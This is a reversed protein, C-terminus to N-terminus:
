SRCCGASRTGSRGTGRTRHRTTWRCAPSSGRGRRASATRAPRTCGPWTRRRVRLGGGTDARGPPIMSIVLAEPSVALVEPVPVAGAEALWRLGNAEAAFAAAFEASPVASAPSRPLGPVAATRPDPWRPQPAPDAGAKAFAGAPRGACPSCSTSTATSRLRRRAGRPRGPRDATRAPQPWPGHQPRCARDARPRDALRPRSLRTGSPRAAPGAPRRHGARRRRAPRACSDFDAENGGYPDPIEGGGM